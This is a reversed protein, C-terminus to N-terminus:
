PKYNRKLPITRSMNKQNASSLEAYLAEMKTQAERLHQWQAPDAVSPCVEYKGDKISVPVSLAGNDRVGYDAAHNGKLRVNFSEIIEAGHAWALITKYLAYGPLVSAGSDMNPFNFNKQLKSVKRGYSRTESIIKELEPHDKLAQPLSNMGPIMDDAHYGIMHADNLEDGINNELKHALYRFRTSDAMGGFGLVKEPKLIERAAEALLDPQNTVIITTAEPAYNAVHRSIEQILDFNSHAQVLRGSPDTKKFEAKQEATPWTAASVIVLDAGKIDQPDSTIKITPPVHGTTELLPATSEIDALLGAVRDPNKAVLILELDKATNRTLLERLAERAVKGGAGFFAVRM